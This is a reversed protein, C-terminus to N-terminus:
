VAAQANIISDIFLLGVMNTKAPGFPAPLDVRYWVTMAGLISAGNILASRM